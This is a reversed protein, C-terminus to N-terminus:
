SQMQKNNFTLTQEQEFGAARHERSEPPLYLWYWSDPGKIM